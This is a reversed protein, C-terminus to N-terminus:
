WVLNKFKCFLGVSVMVPAGISPSVPSVAVPPVPPTAESPELPAPPLIEMQLFPTPTLRAGLSCFVGGCSTAKARRTTYVYSAQHPPLPPLQRWKCHGRALAAPSGAPPCPAGPGWLDFPASAGPNPPTTNASSCPVSSFKNETQALDTKRRPCPKRVTTVARLHRTQHPPGPTPGLAGDPSLLGVCTGSEGLLRQLCVHALGGRASSPLPRFPSAPTPFGGAM